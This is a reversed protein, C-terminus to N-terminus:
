SCTCGATIAPDEGADSVTKRMIATARPHRDVALYLQEMCRGQRIVFDKVGMVRKAHIQKREKYRLEDELKSLNAGGSSRASEVRERLQDLEFDRDALDVTMVHTVKMFSIKDATGTASYSNKTELGLLIEWLLQSSAVGRVAREYEKWNLGEKYVPFLKPSPRNISGNGSSTEDEPGM